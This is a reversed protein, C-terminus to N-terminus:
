FIRITQDFSVYQKGLLYTDKSHIILFTKKSKWDRKKPKWDSNEAWFDRERLSFPFDRAVKCRGRLMSTSVSTVTALARFRKGCRGCKETRTRDTKGTGYGYGTCCEMGRYVFRGGPQPLHQLLIAPEQWRLEQSQWLNPLHRQLTALTKGFQRYLTIGNRYGDRGTGARDRGKRKTRRLRGCDEM